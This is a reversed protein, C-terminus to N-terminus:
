KWVRPSRYRKSKLFIMSAIRAAKVVSARCRTAALHAAGVSTRAMSTCWVLGCSGGVRTARADDCTQVYAALRYPTDNAIKIEDEKDDFPLIALVPGFVEERAILMDNTVDAFITPRTYHGINFDSPKDLGGM